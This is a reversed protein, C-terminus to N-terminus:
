GSRRPKDAYAGPEPEANIRRIAERTSAATVIGRCEVSRCVVELTEDHFTVIFHQRATWMDESGPFSKANRRGLEALYPSDEIKNFAYFSLGTSYLPHGGLAEDNPYGFTFQSTGLFAVVAYEEEPSPPLTRESVIYACLLERDDLLEIHPM